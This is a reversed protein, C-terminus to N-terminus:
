QNIDTNRLRVRAVHHSGGQDQVHLPAIRILAREKADRRFWKLPVDVGSSRLRCCLRGGHQRDGQALTEDVRTDKRSLRSAVTLEAPSPKRLLEFQWSPSECSRGRVGRQGPPM